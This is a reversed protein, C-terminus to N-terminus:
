VNIGWKKFAEIVEQRSVAETFLNASDTSKSEIERGLKELESQFFLPLRHRIDAIFDDETIKGTDILYYFERFAPIMGDFRDEWTKNDPM